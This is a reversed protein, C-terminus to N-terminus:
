YWVVSLFLFVISTQLFQSVQFVQSCDSCRHGISKELIHRLSCIEMVLSRIIENTENLQKKSFEFSREAHIRFQVCDLCTCIGKCSGTNDRKIEGTMTSLIDKGRNNVNGSALEDITLTEQVSVAPVLLPSCLVEMAEISDDSPPQPKVPPNTSNSQINEATPIESCQAMTSILIPTAVDESRGLNLANAPIEAFDLNESLISNPSDVNLSFNL